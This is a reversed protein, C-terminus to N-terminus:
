PGSSGRGWAGEGGVRAVQKAGEEGREGEKWKEAEEWVKGHKKVLSGQGKDGAYIVTWYALM